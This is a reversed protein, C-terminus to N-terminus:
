PGDLGEGGSELRWLELEANLAAAIDASPMSRASARNEVHITVVEKKVTRDIEEVRGAQRCNEERMARMRRETETMESVIAPPPKRSLVAMGAGIFLAILAVAAVGIEIRKKRSTM